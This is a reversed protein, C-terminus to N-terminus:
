RPQASEYLLTVPGFIGSPQPHLDNMDQMQFRDGYKQKLATYDRPPKGALANTATNYVRIELTNTGQQLYPTLDLSYPPHWLVGARKGNVYITAAERIPADYWARTGPKSAPQTNPVPTGPSFQIRVREGAQVPENQFSTTFRVEGSYFKTKESDSWTTSADKQEPLSTSSASGPYFATWHDLTTSRTVAPAQAASAPAKSAKNSIVLTRSEYPELTVLQDLTATTASGDDPNWWEAAKYASRPRITLQQTQPSTNAIFYIDSNSLSRHIFGVTGNAGTLDLDPTLLSHLSQRLSTLDSVVTSTTALSKIQAAIAPSDKQDMLGPARSPLPGIFLIKGGSHAYDVLHQATVLSIRTTPPVVLIRHHLGQLAIAAADIYDLNYGAGLVAHMLEPSIRTKMEETVSVHGPRFSAQADDEPLLIAIDNAPKGQRLLWSTRQLYATVQPMVPWWPNHANFVAAAYLSWGPEPASSPSYPWGHGIIQNVGEIFMRDAEVKMDLPTARFVPSHLWTWTEASTINKGFIHNASTTWRTFSFTNWQPGEGEPLDPIREDALTAAPEGYTQSRFRTHHQHAYDTLQQLYNERVLDSLTVGWDRRIEQAQPSTGTVLEPLHPILDYGRRRKFEAPLNSTWDSGYVELSDSFIATPPQDPFASLLKDGITSLHTQIAQQSMHDLVYGEAGASARKVMQGTHSSIFFLAVHPEPGSSNQPINWPIPKATAPDYSASTGQAIFAAVQSDGKALVPLASAPAPLAVTVVKLKGAAQEIPIHPGGFPWGSGLTVDVRMGLDRARQQAYRLRAVYEPSTYTLNGDLSLPYVSAIEVGGIGAQHMQQLERDIEDEDVSPGFWWWRMMPFAEAPPHLYLQRLEDLSSQATAFQSYGSWLLAGAAVM